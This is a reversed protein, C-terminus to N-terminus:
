EARSTYVNESIQTMGEPSPVGDPIVTFSGSVGAVGFPSGGGCGLVWTDEDAYALLCVDTEDGGRTLWLSTGDHEGVFRASSSDATDWASAPLAEPVEDAPQADSDLVAYGSGSAACSTLTLVACTAILAMGVHLASRRPVRGTSSPGLPRHKEASGLIKMRGM